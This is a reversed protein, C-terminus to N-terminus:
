LRACGREATCATRYANARISKVRLVRIVGARLVPDSAHQPPMHRKRDHPTINGTFDMPRTEPTRKLCASRERRESAQEERERGDEKM